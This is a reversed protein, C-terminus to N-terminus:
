KIGFYEKIKTAAAVCAMDWTHGQTQRSIGEEIPCPIAVAIKACERVIHDAFRELEANIWQGPEVRFSGDEYLDFGAQEALQKIRENM